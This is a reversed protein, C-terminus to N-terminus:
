EGGNNKDDYGDEDDNFKKRKGGVAVKRSKKFDQLDKRLLDIDNVNM